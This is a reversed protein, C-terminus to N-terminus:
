PWILLGLTVGVSPALTNVAAPATVSPLTAIDAGTEWEMSDSGGSAMCALARLELEIRPRVIDGAAGSLCAARYTSVLDESSYYDDAELRVRHTTRTGDVVLGLSLDAGPREAVYEAMLQASPQLSWNTTDYINDWTTSGNEFERYENHERSNTPHIGASAGVRLGVPFLYGLGLRVPFASGTGRQLRAAKNSAERDLDDDWGFYGGGEWIVPVEHGRRAGLRVSLHFGSNEPAIYGDDDSAAAAGLLLTALHM